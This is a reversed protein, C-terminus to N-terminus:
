GGVAGDASLAHYAGLNTAVAAALLAPQDRQAYWDPDRERDHKVGLGFEWFSM